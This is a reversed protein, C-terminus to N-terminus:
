VDDSYPEANYVPLAVVVEESPGKKGGASMQDQPQMGPMGM